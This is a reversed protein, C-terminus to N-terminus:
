IRIHSSKLLPISTSSSECSSQRIELFSNLWRMMMMPVGKDMMTVLLKEKWVMDYAKSFDLLALCSRQFPSRQFGDEITQIVRAIQDDCGRGKRFGAQQANLMNSTEAIHYLREAVMREM